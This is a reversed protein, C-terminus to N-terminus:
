EDIWLLSAFFTLVILFVVGLSILFMQKKKPEAWDQFEEFYELYKDNKFITFYCISFSLFGFIAFHFWEFNINVPLIIFSVQYLSVIVLFILSIVLGGSIMISLGFHRDSFAKNIEDQINIGLEDYKKRQFPLKHLLNFPNIKNFLLHVQYHMLYICYHLINLKTEM